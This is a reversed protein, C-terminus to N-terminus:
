LMNGRSLHHSQWKQPLDEVERCNISLCMHDAKWKSTALLFRARFKGRLPQELLMPEFIHFPVASHRRLHYIHSIRFTICSLILVDYSSM